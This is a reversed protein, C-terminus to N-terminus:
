EDEKLIDQYLDCLPNVNPLQWSKPKFKTIIKYSEGRIFNLAGVGGKYCINDRSVVSGRIGLAKRLRRRVSKQQARRNM